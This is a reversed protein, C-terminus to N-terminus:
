GGGAPLGSGRLRAPVAPVAGMPAGDGGSWWGLRLPIAIPAPPTTGPVWPCGTLPLHTAFATTPYPSCRHTRRPPPVRPPKLPSVPVRPHGWRPSVSLSGLLSLQAGFAPHRTPLAGVPAGPHLCGDGLPGLCWPSAVRLPELPSVPPRGEGRVRLGGRLQPLCRRAPLPQAPLPGAADPLLHRRLRGPVPLPARRQGCGRLSGPRPVVPHPPHRRPPCCVCHPHPQPFSLCSPPCGNLDGLTPLPILLRPNNVTGPRGTHGFQSPVWADLSGTGWFPLPCLHRPEWYGMSPPFRTTRAGLAGVVGFQSPVGADLSRRVKGTRWVLLSGPKGAEWDGLSPSFGWKGADGLGGLEGDGM